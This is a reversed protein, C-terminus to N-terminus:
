TTVTWSTTTGTTWSDDFMHKSVLHASILKQILDRALEKVNVEWYIYYIEKKEGGKQTKPTNKKGIKKRKKKM